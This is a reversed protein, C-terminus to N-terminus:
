EASLVEWFAKRWFPVEDFGGHNQPQDPLLRDGAGFVKLRIRSRIDLPAMELVPLVNTFRGATLDLPTAPNAFFEDIWVLLSGDPALTWASREEAEAEPRLLLLDFRATINQTQLYPFLVGHYDRLSCAPAMHVIRTIPLDHVSRLIDNAIMAGMSHAVITFEWRLDPEQELREELRALFIAFPAQAVLDPERHFLIRTRRVLTDWASTGGAEVIISAPLKLPNFNDVWQSLREATSRADV